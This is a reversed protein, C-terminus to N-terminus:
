VNGFLIVPPLNTRFNQLKHDCQLINKTLKITRRHSQSSKEPPNLIQEEFLLTNVQERYDYIFAKTSLLFVAKSTTM